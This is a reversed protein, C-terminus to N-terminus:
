VANKKLEELKKVKTNNKILTKDFQKKRETAIDKQENLKKAMDDINNILKSYEPILGEYEKLDKKFKERLASIGNQAKDIQYIMSDVDNIAQKISYFYDTYSVSIVEKQREEVNVINTMASFASLLLSAKLIMGITTPPIKKSATYLITAEMFKSLDLTRSTETEIRKSIKESNNIKDQLDKLIKDQAKTFSEIDSEVKETDEYEKKLLEFDNDRINLNEKKEDTDKKVKDINKEVLIITEIVGIYENIVKIDNNIEETKIIEKDSISVKYEKLMKYIIEEDIEYDKNYKNFANEYKKKIKEFKRLLDELKEKLLEVEKTEFEEESRQSIIDIEFKINDLENQDVRIIREIANIVSVELEQEEIIKELEDVEKSIQPTLIEKKPESEKEKIITTDVTVNNNEKSKIEEKVITQKEEINSTLTTPIIKVKEDKFAADTNINNKEKINRNTSLIVKKPKQEIYQKNNEKKNDFIKYYKRFFNSKDNVAM